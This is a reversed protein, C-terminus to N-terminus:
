GVLLVRLYFSTWKARERVLGRKLFNTAFPKRNQQHNITTITTLGSRNENQEKGLCGLNNISQNISEYGKEIISTALPVFFPVDLCILILTRRHFITNCYTM